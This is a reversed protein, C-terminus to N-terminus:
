EVRRETVDSLRRRRRRRRREPMELTGPTGPAGWNIENFCIGLWSKFRCRFSDVAIIM